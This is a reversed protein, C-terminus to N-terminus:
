DVEVKRLVPKEIIERNEKNVYLFDYLYDGKQDEPLKKFEDLKAKTKFFEPCQEKIFDKNIPKTVKSTKYVLKLSTASSKESATDSVLENKFPPSFNALGLPITEQFKPISVQSSQSAQSSPIKNLGNVKCTGLENKAMFECINAQLESKKVKLEKIKNNLPKIQDTLYKIQDDIEQFERVDVKFFDVNDLQSNM